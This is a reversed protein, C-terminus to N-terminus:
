KNDIQDELFFGQATQTIKISKFIRINRFMFARSCFIDVYKNKFIFFKILEIPINDNGIIVRFIKKLAIFQLTYHEVTIFM